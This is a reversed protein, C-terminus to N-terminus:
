IWLAEDRKQGDSPRLLFQIPITKFLKADKSSTLKSFADTHKNEEGHNGNFEFKNFCPFLRIAKVLYVFIIKDQATFKENM